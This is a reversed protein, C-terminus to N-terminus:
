LTRFHPSLLPGTISIKIEKGQKKFNVFPIESIIRKKLEPELKLSLTGIVRSRYLPHTIFIRGELEATLDKGKVKGLKVEGVSNKVEIKLAMGGAEAPPIELFGMLKGGTIKIDNFEMFIEGNYVSRNRVTSSTLNVKLNGTGSVEIGTKEKIPSNELSANDLSIDFSPKPNFIAKGKITGGLVKGKFKFSNKFLSRRIRVKQLDIINYVTFKEAYIGNPFLYNLGAVTIANKSEKKIYADIVKIFANEPFTLYFFLFFFFLFIFSYFVFNKLSSANIKEKVSSFFNKFIELFKIM